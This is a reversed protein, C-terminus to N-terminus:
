PPLPSPPPTFPCFIASSSLFNQGDHEMDWSGYMIHNDNITCLHLIIIDGPTKKTKELNQNELNNPHYFPLSHDLTVFLRDTASFILRKGLALHAPSSTSDIDWSGYMMHNDNITCMHLIIIDGPTKKMKEFNQNKPNNPPYFPLFHDLIVFFETQQVGYRLFWVDYSQWKHYVNTFHYYRWTNKLIKEFNQNETDMPPYFPLFCDVTVFFETASWTNPVM